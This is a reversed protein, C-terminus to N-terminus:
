SRTSRLTVWALLALGTATLVGYVDVWSLSAAHEWVRQLSPHAVDALPAARDVAAPGRWLVPVAFAALGTLTLVFNFRLVGLRRWTLTVAALAASLNVMPTAPEFPAVDTEATRLAAM